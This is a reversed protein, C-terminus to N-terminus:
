LKIAKQEKSYVYMGLALFSFKYGTEHVRILNDSWSFNKILLFILLPQIIFLSLNYYHVYRFDPKNIKPYILAIFFFYYLSFPLNISVRHIGEYSSNIIIDDGLIEFKLESYKDNLFILHPLIFTNFFYLIIKKIILFYFVSTFLLRATIDFISKDIFKLKTRNSDM